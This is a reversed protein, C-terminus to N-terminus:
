IVNTCLNIRGLIIVRSFVDRHPRPQLHLQVPQQLKEWVQTNFCILLHSLDHVAIVVWLLSFKYQHMESFYIISHDLTLLVLGYFILFVADLFQEILIWPQHNQGGVGFQGFDLCFLVFEPLASLHPWVHAQINSSSKYWPKPQSETWNPYTRTLLVKCFIICAPSAVQTLNSQLQTQTLNLDPEPNM